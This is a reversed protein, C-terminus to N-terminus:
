NNSLHLNETPFEIQNVNTVSFVSNIVIRLDTFSLKNPLSIYMESIYNNTNSALEM